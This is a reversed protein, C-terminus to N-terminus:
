EKSSTTHVMKTRSLNSLGETMWTSQFMSWVHALREEVEANEADEAGGLAEDQFASIPV